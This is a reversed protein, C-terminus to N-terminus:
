DIPLYNDLCAFSFLGGLINIQIYKASDPINDIM